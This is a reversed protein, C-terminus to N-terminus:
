PLTILAFMKEKIALIDEKAYEIKGRLIKEM